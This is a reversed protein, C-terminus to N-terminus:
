GVAALGAWSEVMRESIGKVQAADELSAFPGHEERWALIADARAEGVEPLTMLEERTATNINLPEAARGEWSLQEATCFGPQWVPAILFLAGLIVAAAAALSIAALEKKGIEM